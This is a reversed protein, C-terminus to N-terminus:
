FYPQGILDSIRSAVDSQKYPLDMTISNSDFM